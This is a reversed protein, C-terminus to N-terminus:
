GGDANPRMVPHTGVALPGHGVQAERSECDPDQLDPVGLSTRNASESTTQKSPLQALRSLRSAEYGGPTPLPLWRREPQAM